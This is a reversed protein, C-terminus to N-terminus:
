GTVETKTHKSVAQRFADDLRDRGYSPSVMSQSAAGVFFEVPGYVTVPTVWRLVRVLANLVGLPIRGFRPPKGLAQFALEGIAKQSLIEPGGCDVEEENQECADCCVVALDAGSIPNLRTDGQGILWVRGRRAMDLFVMLDNFYGNPRILTSPLTSAKLADVFAEKAGVLAQHRMARGNFVSVYCFRQVSASEALRLLNLNAQYDVQRYTLGDRQRTIGLSSYVLDIGDMLGTLTGADTAQGRFVDDALDELEALRSGPRALIRVWHGRSKLEAVLHRGLYGTAGAVLVRAM